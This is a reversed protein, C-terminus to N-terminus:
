PLHTLPAHLDPALNGGAQYAVLVLGRHSATVSCRTADPSPRYVFFEDAVGSASDTGLLRLAHTGLPPPVQQRGTVLGRRRLAGIGACTPQKPDDLRAWQKCAEGM